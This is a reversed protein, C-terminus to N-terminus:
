IEQQTIAFFFCSFFEEKKHQDDIVEFSVIGRGDNEFKLFTISFLFPFINLFVFFKDNTKQKNIFKFNKQQRKQKTEKM